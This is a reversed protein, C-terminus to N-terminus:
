VTLKERVEHIIILVICVVCVVDECSQLVAQLVEVTVLLKFVYERRTRDANLLAGEFSILLQLGVVRFAGVMDDEVEVVVTLSSNMEQALM